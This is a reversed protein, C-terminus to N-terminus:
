HVDVIPGGGIINGNHRIAFTSHKGAYKMDAYIAPIQAIVQIWNGPLTKLELDFLLEDPNIGQPNAVALIAQHGPHPAEVTGQVHLSDPPPPMKNVWAVWTSGYIPASSM